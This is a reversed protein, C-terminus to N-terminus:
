VLLEVIVKVAANNQEHAQDIALSSFVRKTKHVTFHGKNFDLAITPHTVSLNVMGRIHVPLWRAYNPHDLSFVWPALQM